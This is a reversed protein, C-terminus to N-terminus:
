SSQAAKLSKIKYHGYAYSDTSDLLYRKDDYPSLAAKVINTTHVVHDISRLTNFKAKTPEEKVLCDRYNAHLISKAVFSRKVGKATKKEKDNPLLISYMKSRLGVFELPPVGNTEDKFKGIVKANKKDHLPHDKPYDSTDYFDLSDKMDKYLDDTRVEYCLSDTDTFLLKARDGYKKVYVDYHFQYMQLKSIDLIAMGVYIPKNLLITPKTLKVITVEENIIKSALFTPRAIFKMARLESTLIHVNLHNRDNQMTKGYISNNMLKFLDKEFPSEAEKRKSTNFDIYPQLWRSQEFALIRHIKVVEMGQQVYFQLNRYHVVYNTKKAFNPILKAPKKATYKVDLKQALNVAYPSLMDATVVVKEPALPYDNHKDHLHDPYNLDVELIYGTTDDALKSGLDFNEVEPSELFRFKGTPLPESMAYGYLNNCDLYVIYSNEKGRDYCEPPLYPNNAEAFRNCIMSIGGRLGKESFLYQDPDTLLELNAGTMKMCADWSLGPSSFYHLPDLRYYKLATKRFKEFVDALLVVDTSLYLDHYQGMTKLRFKEWVLCAHAYDEDSIHEEALSSYFKDKEPLRTEFMRDVSDMYEYPYVGKRKLLKFEEVNPRLRRMHEFDEEEKLNKVLGDLSHNLFQLSDVFRLGDIEFSIYKEMNNAIVSVDEPADFRSLHKIIFHADYGRLNHFVVPILYNATEHEGKMRKRYRMLLNCQNCLAELFNGTVHCHHKVKNEKTLAMDCSPCITTEKFKRLQSESLSIM